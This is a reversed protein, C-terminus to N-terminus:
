RKRGSSSTLTLTLTLTLTGLLDECIHRLAEKWFFLPMSAYPALDAWVAAKSTHVQWTLFTPCPSLTGGVCPPM